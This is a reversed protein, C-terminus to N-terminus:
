GVTYILVTAAGGSVASQLRLTHAEGQTLHTSLDYKMWTVDSGYNAVLQSGDIYFFVDQITLASVSLSAEYLSYSSPIFLTTDETGGSTRTNEFVLLKTGTPYIWNYYHLNPEVNAYSLGASNCM